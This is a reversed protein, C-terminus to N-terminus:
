LFNLLTETSDDDNTKITNTKWTKPRPTDDLKVKNMKDVMKQLKEKEEKDARWKQYMDSFSTDMFEIFQKLKRTESVLLANEKYLDEGKYSSSKSDILEHYHELQSEMKKVKSRLSSLELDMTGSKKKDLTYETENKLNYKNILQEFDDFEDKKPSRKKLPSTPSRRSRILPSMGSNPPRLDPIDRSRFGLSKMPSMVRSNRSHGERGLKYKSSNNPSPSTVIDRLFRHRKENNIKIDKDYSSDDLYRLNEVDLLSTDVDRSNQAGILDGRSRPLSGNKDNELSSSMKTSIWPKIPSMTSEDNFDMHINGQHSSDNLAERYLRSKARRTNLRINTLTSLDSDPDHRSM